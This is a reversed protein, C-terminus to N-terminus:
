QRGADCGADITARCRQSIRWYLLIDRHYRDIRVRVITGNVHTLYEGPRATSTALAAFQNRLRWENYRAARASICSQIMSAEILGHVRDVTFGLRIPFAAGFSTEASLLHRGPEVDHARQALPGLGLSDAQQHMRRLPARWWGIPPAAPDIRLGNFVVMRDPREAYRRVELTVTRDHRLSRVALVSSSAEITRYGGPMTGDSCTRGIRHSLDRATGAATSRDAYTSSVTVAHVGASDDISVVYQTPHLTPRRHNYTLVLTSGNRRRDVTILDHRSTVRELDTISAGMPVIFTSGPVYSGLDVIPKSFTDQASPEMAVSDPQQARATGPQSPAARGILPPSAMRMVRQYTYELQLMMAIVVIIFMTMTM